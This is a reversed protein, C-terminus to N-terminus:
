EVDIRAVDRVSRGGLGDGPVILRLARGPLPVGNMQDALLVQKGEFQPAIEGLAILASYGDAGTIRVALHAMERPTAADVVGSAGIVEWLLPGTWESQQEGRASSFGVRQTVRALAAIREPSVIQSSQGVRQVLLGRQTQAPEVFAVPDFGHAKLVAQGTESMVFLAFHLTVPKTNLLVMGYAPGVALEPPLSVVTLGPVERVVTSSGSCYTLAVDAQDALFIGEVAGKGAVLLPTAAGGFLQKAKGELLARAGGRIAEARAFVAWTYDGLPDAGPTSTALRVTPDLLRDSMNASTLGVAPRALACLRNRTFHVVVREPHGVALRRAQEMDASAFLDVEAGGEIKQRMLGSPGFEPAAVTDPAAPFARLLDTFAATLSGAGMVRLPEAAAPLTRALLLGLVFALYHRMM